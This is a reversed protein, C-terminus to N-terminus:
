GVCRDQPTRRAEAQDAVADEAHVTLLSCTNGTSLALSFPSPDTATLALPCRSDTDLVAVEASREATSNTGSGDSTSSFTPVTTESKEPAPPSSMPNAAAPNRGIQAFSM